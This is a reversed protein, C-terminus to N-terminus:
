NVLGQMADKQPENVPRYRMLGEQAVSAVLKGDQSFIMGRNFGRAGAANPSDKVYLFWGDLRFDRHFWMAHDLSAVQVGPQMYTVAHPLFSTTALGFDSAYALFAQHIVPDDPLDGTVRFWSHKEPARKEPKLPDVPGVVRIEIPREITLKERISSPIKEKIRRAIDLDSEIGDPGPVSPMVASHEFGTERKQFSASMSFIALGKQKAVVRRTSFSAGTRILDVDYYIPQIPDGARLFYGHLSHIFRGPEVTRACAVLAQGLVHGGFLSRFGLDQSEGYFVNTEIARINLLSVLQSVVHNSM